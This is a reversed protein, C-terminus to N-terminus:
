TILGWAVLCRTDKVEGRCSSQDVDFKDGVIDRQKNFATM